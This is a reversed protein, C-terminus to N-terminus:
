ESRCSTWCEEPSRTAKAKRTWAAESASSSTSRASSSWCSASSSRPAAGSDADQRELLPQSGQLQPDLPELSTAAWEPAPSGDLPPSPESAAMPAPVHACLARRDVSPPPVDDGHGFRPPSPKRTPLRVLLRAPRSPSASARGLPPASSPSVKTSPGSGCRTQAARLGGTNPLIASRAARTHFPCPM